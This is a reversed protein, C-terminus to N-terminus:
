HPNFLSIGAYFGFLKAWESVRTVIKQATQIEVVTQDQLESKLISRIQYRVADGSVDLRTGCQGCFVNTVSNRSGCIPCTVLVPSSDDM